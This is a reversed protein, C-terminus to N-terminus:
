RVVRATVGDSLIRVRDGAQFSEGAPQTVVIRQGDELALTIEHGPQSGSGVTHGAVGGAVTGIVSGVVAGRGRGVNGGAAGGLISGAAPVLINGASDIQVERVSEVVGRYESQRAPEKKEPGACGGALLVAALTAITAARACM